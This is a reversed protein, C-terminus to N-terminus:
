LFDVFGLWFFKKRTCFHEDTSVYIRLQQLGRMIEFMCVEHTVYHNGMNTTSHKGYKHRNKQKSQVICVSCNSDRKCRVAAMYSSKYFQLIKFNWSIRFIEQDQYLQTSYM